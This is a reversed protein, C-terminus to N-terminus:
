FAGEIKSELRPLDENKLRVILTVGLDSNKRSIVNGKKYLWSLTSGDSHPLTVTFKQSSNNLLKEIMALLSSIGRGTLASALITKGDSRKIKNEQYIVEDKKLLDAKNYLDILTHKETADFGISKVVKLVEEKQYQKNINSVDQVHVLIDAELVEELTANFAEVLEHPLDSIFGVTDSLIIAGGSPLEVRRMTPDLTAFLQDEAKVDAGTLYNFLTSKGSNTYGVLAVIPFPYRKRARRHLSRTRRVSSLEKKIKTIRGSIIRRDSEIQTEGPGGMFGVGGRQRELHTWSRVLRSRQYVLSALEVQLVGEKTRARSGFIEIILGTRDLVKCKWIKELNRQQIPSLEKDIIVVEVDIKKIIQGLREVSGKGIYTKPNIKM